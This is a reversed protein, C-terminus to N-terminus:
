TRLHTKDHFPQIIKLLSFVMFSNGVEKGDKIKCTTIKNSQFFISWSMIKLIMVTLLDLVRRLTKRIPFGLHRVIPLFQPAPSRKCALFSSSWEKTPYVVRRIGRTGGRIVSWLSSFFIDRIAHICVKGFNKGAIHMKLRVIM